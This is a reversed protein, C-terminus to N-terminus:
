TILVFLNVSCICVAVSCSIQLERFSFIYQAISIEHDVASANLISKSTYVLIRKGACILMHTRSLNCCRMLMLLFVVCVSVFPYFSPSRPFSVSHSFLFFSLLLFLSVYENRRQTISTSFHKHDRVFPKKTDDSFVACHM